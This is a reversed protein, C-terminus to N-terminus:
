LKMEFADCCGYMSFQQQNKLMFFFYSGGGGAMVSREDDCFATRLLM